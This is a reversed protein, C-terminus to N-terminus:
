NTLKTNYALLRKLQDKKLWPKRRHLMSHCNSCVMVLDNINTKEGPQMESVPKVHHVEIFAEGLEGYKMHFDFDCIECFLRNSHEKKFKEKAKNILSHNRERYIHQRIKRRGESFSSDDQTLDMNEESINPERLGWKGKGKENVIYFLDNKGAFADSDSSNKELTGRIIAEFSKPIDKQTIEAVKDYIEKLTGQGGMQNLAVIVEEKRTM